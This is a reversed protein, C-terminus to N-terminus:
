VMGDLHCWLSPWGIDRIKFCIIELELKSNDDELDKSKIQLVQWHFWVWLNGNEVDERVEEWYRSIINELTQVKEISDCSLKLYYM